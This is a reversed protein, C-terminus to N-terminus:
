RYGQTLACSSYNNPPPSLNRERECFGLFSAWSKEKFPLSSSIWWHSLLRPPIFERECFRFLKGVKKSSHLSSSIWWHSLLRTHLLNWFQLFFLDEQLGDDAIVIALTFGICTGHLIPRHVMISPRHMGMSIVWWNWSVWCGGNCWWQGIIM